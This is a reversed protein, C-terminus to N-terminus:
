HVIKQHTWPWGRCSQNAHGLKVNYQQFALPNNCRLFLHFECAHRNSHQPQGQVWWRIDCSVLASPKVKPAQRGDCLLLRLSSSDTHLLLTSTKLSMWSSICTWPGHPCYRALWTRRILELRNRSESLIFNVEHNPSPCPRWKIHHDENSAWTGRPLGVARVFLTYAKKSLM